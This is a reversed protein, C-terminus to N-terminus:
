LISGVIDIIGLHSGVQIEIYVTNNYKPLVFGAKGQILFQVDLIDDAEFYIYQNDPHLGPRLLPCIWAIFGASKGKFCEIKKYTLEHIFLSVELKM